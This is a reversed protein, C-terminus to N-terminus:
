GRNKLIMKLKEVVVFLVPILFIGIATATLMGGVVATEM